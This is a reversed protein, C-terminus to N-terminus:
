EKNTPAVMLTVGDNRNIMVVFQGDEDPTVDPWMFSSHGYLRVNRIDRGLFRLRVSDSSSVLWSTTTPTHIPGEFAPLGLLLELM